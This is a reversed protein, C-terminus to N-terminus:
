LPVNNIYALHSLAYVLFLDLILLPIMFTSALPLIYWIEIFVWFNYTFVITMLWLGYAINQGYFFISVWALGIFEGIIFLILIVPNNELTLISLYSILTTVLWFAIFVSVDISGKKLSKYWNTESGTIAITLTIFTLAFLLGYLIIKWYGLKELRDCEM